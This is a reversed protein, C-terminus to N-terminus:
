EISITCGFLKGGDGSNDLKLRVYLEEDKKIVEPIDLTTIIYQFKKDNASYTNEMEKVYEILRCYISLDLDHLKPSDHILIPPRCESVDKNNITLELLAVDFALLSANRMGAGKDLTGDKYLIRPEYTKFNVEGIRQDNTIFKVIKSYYKNLEVARNKGMQKLEDSIDKIASNQESIKEELEDLYEFNRMDKALLELSHKIRQNEEDVKEYKETREFKLNEQKKQYVIQSKQTSTLEKEFQKIYSSVRRISDMLEKREMQIIKKRANTAHILQKKKGQEKLYECGDGSTELEQMYFPCKDYSINDFLEIGINMTDIKYNENDIDNVAKQYEWKRNRLIYLEEEYNRLKNDIKILERKGAELEMDIQTKIDIANELIEENKFLEKELKLKRKKLGSYTEDSVYDFYKKLTNRQNVLKSKESELEAQSEELMVKERTVLGLLFELRKKKVKASEEKIGSDFKTFGYFQDRILYCMISRHTIYTKNNIIISEGYIQDTLFKIYDSNNYYTSEIVEENLLRDIVLGEYVRNEEGDTLRRSITFCTNGLILEALLEREVFVGESALPNTIYERKGLLYDILKIFTTKGVSNRFDAGEVVGLKNEAWIINLGNKFLVDCKGLQPKIILRILCINSM